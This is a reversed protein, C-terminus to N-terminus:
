YEQNNDEYIKASDWEIIKIDEKYFECEEVIEGIRNIFMSGGDFLIDTNGGVQNVYVLPLGYTKANLQMRNRRKEVHNYSYPSGSLNIMVSPKQGYLEDMPTVKYLKDDDLNWLDECITVAIREGMYEVCEFVENPQFYRYEDFIDYTPLLTKDIRRLLKKDAFFFASNYLKKGKQLGTWAPGGVLVAIGETAECIIALGIECREIFSPYDLLDKPPYGCIALESFVAIDTKAEKAKAIEALIKATNGEIDGIVYNLQVLAIKM